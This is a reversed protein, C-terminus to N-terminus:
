LKDKFLKFVGDLQDCKYYKLDDGIRIYAYFWDDKLKNIKIFGSKYGITLSLSIGFKIPYNRDINTIKGVNSIFTYISDYEKKTIDDRDLENFSHFVDEDLEQYFNINEYLKIYRM